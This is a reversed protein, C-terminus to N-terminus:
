DGLGPGSQVPPLHFEPALTGTCCPTVVCLFLYMAQSEIGQGPSVQSPKGSVTPGGVEGRVPTKLVPYEHFTLSLSLAILKTGCGM